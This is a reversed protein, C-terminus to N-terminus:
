GDSGERPPPPLPQWHTPNGLWGPTDADHSYWDVAVPNKTDTPDYILVDTGDRPATSIPRWGQADTMAEVEL